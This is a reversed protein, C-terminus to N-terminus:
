GRLASLAARIVAVYPTTPRGILASLQRGNDELGGKAVGSDSSALLAAMQDPMGSKLLAAKFDQEPLNRYVVNKGSEAAVATSFEALNYSEDGALEYM